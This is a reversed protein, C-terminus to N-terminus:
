DKNDKDQEESQNKLNMLVATVVTIGFTELASLLIPLTFGTAITTLFTIGAGIAAQIATRKIRKWDFM